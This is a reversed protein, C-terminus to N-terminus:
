SNASRTRSAKAAAPVKTAKGARSCLRAYVTMLLEAQDAANLKREIRERAANGLVVRAEPHEALFRIHAALAAADGAPYALASRGDEFLEAAGSECTAIVPKSCAMGELIVMGMPEPNTSAHVVVDLARIALQPNAVFGTFGILNAIGLREAEEKLEEISFQSGDTDYIPGGIIYGRVPLERALMSLAKLFVCHGKWRAFTAVLGVRIVNQRPELGSAKDLDLREGSATFASVNLFNYFTLVELRDGCCARVDAAVSNSNALAYSAHSVNLLILRSMLARSRVYDHFHWILPVRRRTAWGGLLHMKFGTAHIVDPSLQRILRRLRHIYSLTSVAVGPLRAVSRATSWMGQGRLGSDGFRAVANPMPLVIVEVGLQRIREVLPGDQGLVLTVKWEPAFRVTNAILDLLSTEAGGLQAAPNLHLIHM